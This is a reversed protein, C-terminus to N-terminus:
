DRATLYKKPLVAYNPSLLDQTFGPESSPPEEGSDKTYKLSKM